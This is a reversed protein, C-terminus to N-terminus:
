LKCPRLMRMVIRISTATSGIAFRQARFNPAAGSGCTTERLIGQAFKAPLAQAGQLLRSRGICWKNDCCSLCHSKGSVPPDGTALQDVSDELFHFAGGTTATRAEDHNLLM